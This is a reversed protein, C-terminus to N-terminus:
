AENGITIDRSIVGSSTVERVSVNSGITLGAFFSIADNLSRYAKDWSSGDHEPDTCEADIYLM